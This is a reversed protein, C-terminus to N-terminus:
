DNAGKAADSYLLQLTENDAIGTGELGNKEQFAIVAEETVSGFYGDYEVTLFGLEHLRAQMKYVDDM